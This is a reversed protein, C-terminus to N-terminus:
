KNELNAIEELLKTTHDQLEIPSAYDTTNGLIRIHQQLNHFIVPGTGGFEGDLNLLLPQQDLSEAKIFSTHIYAVKPHAIHKGNQIIMGLIQLIEFISATQIIFLTFKGNGMLMNPDINEIGGVSKTLAVFYMSAEGEFVGKDHEIRMHIPKVLSLKEAGKILYALYGFVTKLRPPIDYTIDSLYGGTAINIFYKNNAKGVDMPIVRGKAIVQAAELLDGRPIKLARALDNTTGAPIIGILPRKPLDSIGNIVESVTGDGGAAVILDFGRLAARKAEKAASQPEPTTEFTSTEYGAGELIKLIALMNKTIQERGSSPNYIVRARM